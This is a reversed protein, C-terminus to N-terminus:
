QLLAVVAAHGLRQANELATGLGTDDRTKDAGAALLVHLVDAHGEQAAVLLPTRGRDGLNVDAGAELLKRAVGAHGSEAAAFLPVLGTVMDGQNVHAGAAILLDVIREDGACSAGGLATVGPGEFANPDAGAQLLQQARRRDGDLVAAVLSNERLMMSPSWSETPISGNPQLLAVVAAHGSEQAIMLATGRGASNRTKDAGAALLIRVVDAYGEHSAVALPTHGHPHGTQRHPAWTGRCTNVEAGAELLKHVVGAQGFAAATYLVAEGNKQPLNVDAGAAILLDVVGEEGASTAAGLATLWPGPGLGPGELRNPDVGADLLQAVRRHDGRSATYVLGNPDLRCSPYAIKPEPGASSAASYRLSTPEERSSALPPQFMPHNPASNRGHRAWDPVTTAANALFEAVDAEKGMGIMMNLSGVQLPSMGHVGMAYTPNVVPRRHSKYCPLCFDIDVERNGYATDGVAFKTRCNRGDCSFSNTPVTFRRLPAYCASPPGGVDSQDQHPHRFGSLMIPPMKPLQPAREGPMKRVTAPITSRPATLTSAADAFDLAHDVARICREMQSEDFNTPGFRSLDQCLIAPDTLRWGRQERVGQLDTVMLYGRTHEHTWLSFQLLGPARVDALGGANDSYKTFSGSLNAEMTFLQLQGTASDKLEILQSSLFSITEASSGAPSRMWIEALRSAIADQEMQQSLLERTRYRPEKFQKLVCPQWRGDLKVRAHHASRVGGQAFCSIAVQSPVDRHRLVLSPESEFHSSDAFEMASISARHTPLSDWLPISADVKTPLIGGGGGGGGGAPLRAMSEMLSDVSSDFDDCQPSGGGQWHLGAADVQGGRRASAQDATSAAIAAALM